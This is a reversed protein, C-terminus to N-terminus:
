FHRTREVDIIEGLKVLVVLVFLAHVDHHCMGSCNLHHIVERIKALGGEQQVLLRPPREKAICFLTRQSWCIAQYLLLLANWSLPAPQSRNEISKHDVQPLSRAIQPDFRDNKIPLWGFGGRQEVQAGHLLFPSSLTLFSRKGCLDTM